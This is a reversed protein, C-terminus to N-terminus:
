FATGLRDRFLTESPIPRRSSRFTLVFRVFSPAVFHVTSIIVLSGVFTARCSRTTVVVSPDLNILAARVLVREPDIDAKKRAFQNAYRKM